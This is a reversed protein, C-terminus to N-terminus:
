PVPTGYPTSYFWLIISLSVQEVAYMRSNIRQMRPQSDTVLLVKVFVGVLAYILAIAGETTEVQYGNSELLLIVRQPIEAMTANPNAVHALGDVKFGSATSEEPLFAVSRHKNFLAHLKELMLDANISESTPFRFQWEFQTKIGTRLTLSEISSFDSESFEGMRILTEIQYDFLDWIKATLNSDILGEKEMHVVALCFLEWYLSKHLQPENKKSFIGM